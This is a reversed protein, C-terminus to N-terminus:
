CIFRSCILPPCLQCSSRAMCSSTIIQYTTISQGNVTLLGWKNHRKLHLPRVSCLGQNSHKHQLNDRRSDSTLHNIAYPDAPLYHNKSSYMAGGESGGWFSTDLNRVTEQLKSYQHKSINTIDAPSRGFGCSSSEPSETQYSRVVRNARKCAISFPMQRRVHYRKPIVIVSYRLLKRAVAHRIFILTWTEIFKSLVSIKNQSEPKFPVSLALKQYKKM